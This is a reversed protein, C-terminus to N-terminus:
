INNALKGLKIRIVSNRRLRPLDIFTMSIWPVQKRDIFYCYIERANYVRRGSGTVKQPMIAISACKGRRSVGLM